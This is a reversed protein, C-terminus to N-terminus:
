PAEWYGYGGGDGGGGEFAPAENNPDSQVDEGDITVGFTGYGAGAIAFTLTTGDGTLPWTSGPSGVGGVVQAPLRKQVTGEAVTSSTVSTILVVGYGSDVYEWEIGVNWTQTGNTKSDGGGDWSRGDEHVPARQGTESWNGGSPVTVAMYTKGDNRRLDGQSVGRDGVVWPKIQGLDKAELYFLSGVANATFIPKTATLTVTGQVGSAAVKNAEDSNLTRFPGEKAVYLSLEFVNAATRRLERPQHNPHVLYLVDASQTYRVEAPEDLGLLTSRIWPATIQLGYDEAWENSLDSPTNGVNGAVLSRWTKGAHTVYQDLAYTTAVDWATTPPSVEAGGSLFRMHGSGLAIVYSLESSFVFPILREGGGLPMQAVFRFGPRNEVGGYPRVIFNRCRKLGAMYRNLDVRGHLSPSVEGATLTPQLLKAGM